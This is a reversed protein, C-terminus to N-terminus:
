RLVGGFPILVLFFGPLRDEVKTLRRPGRTGFDKVRCLQFKVMAIVVHPFRYFCGEMIAAKAIDIQVKYMPRDTPGLRPSLTPSGDTVSLFLPFQSTYSDACKAHPM